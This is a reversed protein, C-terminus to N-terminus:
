SGFCRLNRDAGGTVACETGIDFRRCTHIEICFVPFLFIRGVKEFFYFRDKFFVIECKHIKLASQCGAGRTCILGKCEFPIRRIQIDEFLSRHLSNRKGVVVAPIVPISTIGIRDGNEPFVIHWERGISFNGDIFCFAFLDAHDRDVTKLTYGCAFIVDFISNLFQFFLFRIKDNDAHM